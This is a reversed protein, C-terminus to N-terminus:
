TVRVSPVGTTPALVPKQRSFTFELKVSGPADFSQLNARLVYDSSTDCDLEAKAPQSFKATLDVGGATVKMNSVADANRVELVLDVLQGQLLRTREPLLIRVSPSSQALLTLPLLASISLFRAATLM